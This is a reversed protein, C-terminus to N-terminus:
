LTKPKWTNGECKVINFGKEQWNELQNILNEIEKDLFLDEIIFSGVNIGNDKINELESIVDSISKSGVLQLMSTHYKIGENLIEYQSFTEIQEELSSTPDAETIDEVDLIEVTLGQEDYPKEHELYDFPSMM